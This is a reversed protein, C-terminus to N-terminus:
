LHSDITIKFERTKALDAPEIKGILDGAMPMASATKSVRALLRVQPFGSLKMSPMMADADSLSVAVPLDAVKKRIIALPMKPGSLAQAYIFVTDEPQTQAKLGEDLSVKINIELGTSAKPQTQTQTQTQAPRADGDAAAGPQADANAIIQAIQQKDPSDPPLLASLKKLQEVAKPKNGSQAYSMASFWVATVNKSDSALVQEVLEVPKGAWNNNNALMLAEAYPLVVDPNNKDLEYARNLATVAAPYKQMVKYSRGLMLWGEVNNPEAKLKEELKAVMANIQDPSPMAPGQGEQQQAVYAPDLAQYHGLTFYMGFACIPLLPLLVYALWRGDGVSQGAQKAIGLDEALTLELEAVQEDYQTQSIGGSDRNAKLENLRERAIKINRLDADDSSASEEPKGRFLPPLVIVYATLILGVAVFWFVANL